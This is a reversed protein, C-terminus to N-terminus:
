HLAFKDAEDICDEVVDWFKAVDLGRAIRVGPVGVEKATVVTRGIQSGKKADDLHGETVVSIGFRERVSSDGTDPNWDYFPIEHQTGILIAAVAM